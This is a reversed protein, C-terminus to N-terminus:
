DQLSAIIRQHDYQVDMWKITWRNEVEEEEREKTNMLGIGQKSVEELGDAFTNMDKAVNKNDDQLLYNKM